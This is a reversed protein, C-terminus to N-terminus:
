GDIVGFQVTLGPQREADSLRVADSPLDKAYIGNHRQWAADHVVPQPPWTRHQARTGRRETHGQVHDWHPKPVFEVPGWWRTLSNHLCADPNPPVYGQGRQGLILD